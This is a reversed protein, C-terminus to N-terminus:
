SWNNRSIARITIIDAEISTFLVLVEILTKDKFQNISWHPAYSNGHSNVMKLMIPIVRTALVNDDPNLESHNIINKISNEVNLSNSMNLIKNIDMEYSIGDLKYNSIQDLTESIYTYVMSLLIDSSNLGKENVKLLIDAVNDNNRKNKINSLNLRIFKCENFYNKLNSRVIYKSSNLNPETNEGCTSLLNLKLNDMQNIIVDTRLNLEHMRNLLFKSFDIKPKNKITNETVAIESRVDMIYGNTTKSNESISTQINEDLEIITNFVKEFYLDTSNHTCSFILISCIFLIIKKM